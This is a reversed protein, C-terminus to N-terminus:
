SEAPNNEVFNEGDYFFGIKALETKKIYFGDPCQWIASDELIIINVVQSTAYSIIAYKM